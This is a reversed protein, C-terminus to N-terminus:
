KNGAESNNAVQTVEGTRFDVEIKKRLLKYRIGGEKRDYYKEVLGAATLKELARYVSERYKITFGKNNLENLIEIVSRPKVALIRLIEIRTRSSLASFVREPLM